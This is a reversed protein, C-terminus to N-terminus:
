HDGLRSLYISVIEPRKGSRFESIVKGLGSAIDHLFIWKSELNQHTSLTKDIIKAINFSKSTLGNYRGSSVVPLSRERSWHVM